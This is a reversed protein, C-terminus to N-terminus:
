QKAAPQQHMRRSWVIHSTIFDVTVTASGNVSYGSDVCVFMNSDHELVLQLLYMKFAIIRTWLAMLNIVLSFHNLSNMTTKM